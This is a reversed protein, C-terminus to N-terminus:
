EHGYLHIFHLLAHRRDDIDGSVSASLVPILQFLKGHLSRDQLKGLLIVAIKHKLPMGRHILNVGAGAHNVPDRLFIRDAHQLFIQLSLCAGPYADSISQSSIGCTCSQLGHIGVLFGHHM